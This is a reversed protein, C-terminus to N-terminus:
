LTLYVFTVVYTNSVIQHLCKISAIVPQGQVFIMDSNISTNHVDYKNHHNNKINITSTTRKKNITWPNHGLATGVREFSSLLQHTTKCPCTVYWRLGASIVIRQLGGLAKPDCFFNIALCYVFNNFKYLWFM